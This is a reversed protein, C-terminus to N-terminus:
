SQPMLFIPSTQNVAQCFPMSHGGKKGPTAMSMVLALLASIAKFLM